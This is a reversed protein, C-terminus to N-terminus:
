FPHWSCDDSGNDYLESEKLAAAHGDVFAIGSRGNGRTYATDDITQETTGSSGHWFGSQARRYGYSALWTSVQAPDFFLVTETPRKAATIQQHGM